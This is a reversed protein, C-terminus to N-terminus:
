CILEGKFALNLLSSKLRQLKELSANTEKELKELATFKFDLIEVIQKQIELPPLPIPLNSIFDSSVRLQGATGKFNKVGEKTFKATNFFYFIFKLLIVNENPLVVILETTGAGYGNKLDQLIVCKGNEFCPTIKAIAICNNQLHTYGKKVEKWAKITYSFKNQYKDAILNM